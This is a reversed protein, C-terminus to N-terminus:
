TPWGWSRGSFIPEVGDSFVHPSHRVQLLAPTPQVFHCLEPPAILTLLASRAPPATPERTDQSASAIPSSAQAQECATIKLIFFLKLNFELNGIPSTSNEPCALSLNTNGGPCYYGAYCIECPSTGIRSGDGRYGPACLCANQVTSGTPSISNAPCTFSM